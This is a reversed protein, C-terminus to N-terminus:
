TELVLRAVVDTGFATLIALYLLGTAAMVAAYQRERLAARTVIVLAGTTIACAVWFWGLMGGYSDDIAGTLVSIMGTPVILLGVELPWLRGLWSVQELLPERRLGPQILYWHGLLMADTVCGLFAAGVLIRATQLLENGGGGIGAAVLGITGIAPALLDWRPDFSPATEKTQSPQPTPHSHRRIISLLLAGAAATAVGVSAADRLPESAWGYGALAALVAVAAYSARLLWGYGVGLEGRRTTVWCFLLGGTAWQLLVTAADLQPGAAM